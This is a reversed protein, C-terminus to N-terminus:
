VTSANDLATRSFVIVQDGSFFQYKKNKMPNILVGNYPPEALEPMVSRFGVCVEGQSQASCFLELFFIPESLDHIYLEIPKLSFRFRDEDFLLAYMKLLDVEESLQTLLMTAVNSTILFDVPDDAHILQTNEPRFLQTVVRARIAEPPLEDRLRKLLLILMLTDADMQEETETQGSQSLLIVTNFSFPELSTLGQYSFPNIPEHRIYIKESTIDLCHALSEPREHVAITLESGRPLRLQCAKFISPALYHWGIMLVRQPKVEYSIPPRMPQIRHFLPTEDFNIYDDDRAILLVEEGEQTMREQAPIFEIQGQADKIGIPIGDKFHFALEGFQKHPPVEYFYFESMEFSLLESYVRELGPYLASQVLMSALLYNSDISVINPSLSVILERRTKDFIEAVIPFRSSSDQAAYVAKITQLVRIDSAQKDKLSATQTCRALIIVSRAHETNVRKLHHINTLEGRATSLRVKSPANFWHSLNEDMMQKDTESFVVVPLARKALNSFNLEKIIQFVRDDFGLILSHKKEPIPGSGRRFQHIISTTSATMFAILTSLFGIGVLTTIVSLGKFIWSPDEISILRAPSLMELFIHWALSTASHWEFDLAWFLSVHVFFLILYSLGFLFSLTLYISVGRLALFREYRFRWIQNRLSLKSRSSM